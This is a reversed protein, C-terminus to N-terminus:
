EEDWYAREGEPRRPYRGRSRQRIEARLELRTQEFWRRLEDFVENPERDACSEWTIVEGAKARIRGGGWVRPFRQFIPWIDFAGEIAIPLIPARTRKWLLHFGRQFEHTVGDRTRTGEPYIILAQGSNVVKIATRIAEVDGKSQDISITNFAKLLNRMFWNRFLGSRAMSHFPRNRVVLGIVIPDYHSQHNSIVILPGEPPVRDSGELHLRYFLKMFLWCIPRGIALGIRNSLPQRYGAPSSTCRAPPDGASGLTSSM